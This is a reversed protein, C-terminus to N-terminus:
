IELVIPKMTTHPHKDGAYVKLKSRIKWGLPNRSIMRNVALQMMKAPKQSLMRELPVIKLGGQYGSYRRYEKDTLKKGTVKIKDCNIIIVHDGTDVNPTFIVKHKGRLIAAAKTAVRGLIKDKADILYWHRQIDRPKAIYTKQQIM